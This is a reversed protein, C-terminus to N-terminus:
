EQLLNPNGKWTIVAEGLYQALHENSVIPSYKGSKDDFHIYKFARKAELLALYPHEMGWGHKLRQMRCIGGDDEATIPVGGAVKANTTMREVRPRVETDAIPNEAHQLLCLHLAHQLFCTMLQVTVEEPKGRRAEHEDEDLDENIEAEFESSSYGVPSSSGPIETMSSVYGEREVQKRERRPYVKAQDIIDPRAARALAVWFFGDPLQMLESEGKEYLGSPNDGILSGTWIYNLKQQSNPQDRKCVPCQDNHNPELVPLIIEQDSVVLLRYTILHRFNWRSASSMLEVSNLHSIVEIDGNEKSLTGWDEPTRASYRKYEM